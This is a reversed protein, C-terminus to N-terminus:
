LQPDSGFVFVTVLDDVQGTFWIGNHNAWDLVTGGGGGTLRLRNLDFTFRLTTRDNRVQVVYVNRSLRSPRGTTAPDLFPDVDTERQVVLSGEVSDHDIEAQNAPADLNFWVIYRQNMARRITALPVISPRGAVWQGNRVLLVHREAPARATVPTNQIAALELDPYQQVLDGGADQGFVIPQGAATAAPLDTLRNNGASLDGSLPRSGDTLLYQPHDDNGLGALAGHDAVGGGGLNGPVWSVGDFVLEDGAAPGVGLNVDDLGSLSHSHGIGGQDGGAILAEQLLRTSVLIPREADDITAAAVDVGGLGVATDLDVRALLVCTEDPAPLCAEGAVVEPRRDVAWDRLLAAVGDTDPPSGGSVDLMGRLESILVDLGDLSGPAVEGVPPPPQTRLRLEFSDKLRSAARSHEASLCSDAPIPVDDTPCETWCLVVYVTLTAPLGGSVEDSDAHDRLWDTLSACYEVPVCILRGAPDVALGPRVHLRRNAHDYGVALGSVTGYGHLARTAHHDRERHHFQDQRFEDEGLVLGLQYNVRKRADLGAAGAASPTFGGM